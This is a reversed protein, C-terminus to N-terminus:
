SPCSHGVFGLEGRDLGDDLVGAVAQGVNQDIRRVALILAIDDNGGLERRGLLDGEHRGLCAAQDTKRDGFIARGCEGERRHGLAVFGPM